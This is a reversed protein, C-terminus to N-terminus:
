LIVKLFCSLVKFQFLVCYMANRPSSAKSYTTSRHHSLSCFLHIFSRIILIRIVYRKIEIVEVPKSKLRREYSAFFFVLLSFSHHSFSHLMDRTM